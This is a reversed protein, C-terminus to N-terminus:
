NITLEKLKKHYAAMINPNIKAILKYSDLTKLDKCTSIERITWEEQTAPTVEEAPRNFYTKNPVEDIYMHPFTKKHWDSLIKKARDLTSEIESESSISMELSLRSNLFSGIPFLEEYTVKTPKM